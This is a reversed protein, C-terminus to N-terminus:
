EFVEHVELQSPEPITGSKGAANTSKPSFVRSMGSLQFLNIEEAEFIFSTYRRKTPCENIAIYIIIFKKIMVM